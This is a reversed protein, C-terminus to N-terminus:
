VFPHKNKLHTGAYQNSQHKPLYLPDVIRGDEWTYIYICAM